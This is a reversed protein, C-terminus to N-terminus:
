CKRNWMILADEKPHQYFGPRIGSDEFGVSRYLKIAPENSVRVELTFAECGMEKGKSLLAEIMPKSYGNGRYENSIAVNTIEGEGVIEQLGAGGIIYSDKVAMIYTKHPDTVMKEFDERKWPTSFCEEEIELVRDVDELTIERFELM